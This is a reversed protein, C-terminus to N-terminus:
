VNGKIQYPRTMYTGTHYSSLYLDNKDLNGHDIVRTKLYYRSPPARTANTASDYNTTLALTFPIAILSLLLTSTNSYM